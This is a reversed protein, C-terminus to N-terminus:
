SYAPKPKPKPKKKAKARRADIRQQIVCCLAAADDPSLGLMLAM